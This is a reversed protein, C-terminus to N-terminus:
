EDRASETQGHRAVQRFLKLKSIELKYDRANKRLHSQLDAVLEALDDPHGDGVEISAFTTTAAEGSFEEIRVDEILTAVGAHRKLFRIAIPLLEDAADGGAPEKLMTCIVTM